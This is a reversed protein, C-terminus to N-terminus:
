AAGIPVLSQAGEGVGYHGVVGDALGALALVVSAQGIFTGADDVTSVVQRLRNAVRITAVLDSPVMEVVGEDDPESEVLTGAVVVPLAGAGRLSMADLLPLVARSPELAADDDAVVVFRAGFAPLPTAASEPFFELYGLGILSELLDAEPVPDPGTPEVPPELPGAGDDSPAGPDAGTAPDGPAPEVVTTEGGVAGGEPEDGEVSGDGPEPIDPEPEPEPPDGSAALLEDGLRRLVMTRAVQESGLRRGMIGSLEAVEDETLEDWRATFVLTGSIRAGAARLSSRAESVLDDDTGQVALIAVPVEALHGTFLSRGEVALRDALADRDRLEARLAMNEGDTRDLREGLEDLRDELTDITYRQILSSGLTVGIGLALFVATISVIHYRLNIM